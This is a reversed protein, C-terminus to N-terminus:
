SHVVTLNQISVEGYAGPKDGKSPNSQTYCGAKFYCGTYIGPIHVPNSNNYGVNIGTRDATITVTFETGLSYNTNLDGMEDGRSEVFLRKGELRIMVVDDKADHIQGAVVHPKAEPLHTITQTITMVHTGAKNTWSALSSGFMERLETRPYHSGSTTVGEVEAKFVVERNRVFFHKPDDFTALVPQKIETPSEEKGVPITLKWNRLNLIESPLTDDDVPDRELRRLSERGPLGDANKGLWGQALQFDRVNLRDSEGWRPGPGVSYHKGFGHLVLRQGLWTIHDGRKGPGYNAPDMRDVTM